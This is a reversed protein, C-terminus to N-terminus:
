DYEETIYKMLTQENAKLMRKLNILFRKESLYNMKDTTLIWNLYLTNSVKAAIRWTEKETESNYLRFILWDFSDSKYAVPTFDEHLQPRTKSIGSKVQLYYERVTYNEMARVLVDVQEDSLGCEGGDMEELDDVEIILQKFIDKSSNRAFFVEIEESTVDDFEDIDLGQDYDSLINVPYSEEDDIFATITMDPYYLYGTLCLILALVVTGFAYLMRLKNSRSKLRKTLMKMSGEFLKPHIPTWDIMKLFDLESPLNDPYSNFREADTALVMNKCYKKACMIEARVWDEQNACANLADETLVLIFDNSNEIATFIQKDFVGNEISEYDFFVNYGHSRLYTAINKAMYLGTGRRYSIFVDHRKLGVM